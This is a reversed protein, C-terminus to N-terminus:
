EIQCYPCKECSIPRGCHILNRPCVELAAAIKDITELSANKKGNELQSLFAKALGTDESLKLLSYGRKKRYERVLLKM